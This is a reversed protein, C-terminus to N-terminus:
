RGMKALARLRQDNRVALDRMIQDYVAVIHQGSETVEAGGREHGGANLIIVPARFADNLLRTLKLAKPYSMSLAASAARLSGTEMIAKLLEIQGPGLRSGNPFDIRVSCTAPKEKM